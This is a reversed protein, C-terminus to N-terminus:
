IKHNTKDKNLLLSDKPSDFESNIRNLNEIEKKLDDSTIINGNLDKIIVDDLETTYKKNPLENKM